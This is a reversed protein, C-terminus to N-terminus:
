ATAWSRAMRASITEQTITADNERVRVRVRVRVVRPCAVCLCYGCLVWVWLVWVLHMDCMSGTHDTDLGWLQTTPSGTQAEAFATYKPYIVGDTTLKNDAGACGAVGADCVV